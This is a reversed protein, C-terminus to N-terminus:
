NCKGFNSQCGAGCYQSSTGCYGNYSCCYGSKCNGYGKGCRSNSGYDVNCYGFDKQCGNSTKCFSNSTQYCYGDDLCCYKGCGELGSHIGCGKYVKNMSYVIHKGNNLFLNKTNSTLNTIRDKQGIKNLYEIMTETDFFTSTNEGMILSSVGAVIPSSFSTGSSNSSIEKNDKTYYTIKVTYPAFIDIGNGYNSKDAKKLNYSFDKTEKSAVGGVSIVNNLQSPMHATGTASNYVLANTNGSSAVFVAGKSIFKNILEQQSKFIKRGEASYFGGFSFNIVSKNARFMNSYIYSLAADMNETSYESMEVGYLNANKAVGDYIGGVITAVKTGHDNSNKNYCTKSNLKTLKGKEVKLICKATRSSTNSFNPHNFNFGNDFIYVDIGKGASQPYYYNTDYKGILDSDYKGQSIMSLHNPANTTVGVSSWNTYNIIDSNKYYSGDEEHYVIREEYDVINPLTMVTELLNGTLYSFLITKGNVNAVPYVFSSEGYQNIHDEPHRKRLSKNYEDMEELITINQYTDYNSVILNHIESIAAEVNNTIEQRKRYNNNTSESTSNYDGFYDGSDSDYDSVHILYFREEPKPPEPVELLKEPLHGPLPSPPIHDNDHFPPEVDNIIDDHFPPEDDNIIDDHFPPQEDNDVLNEPFPEEPEDNNILDDPFSEVLESNNIIREPFPEEFENNKIIREPFPEVTEDNNISNDQFPEELEDNNISNDPIQPIDNNIFNNPFQPEDNNILNDHFPELPEEEEEEGRLENLFPKKPISNDPLPETFENIINEPTPENENFIQKTSYFQLQENDNPKEQSPEELTKVGTEISSVSNIFLVIIAVIFINYNKM